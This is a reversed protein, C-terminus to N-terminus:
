KKSNETAKKYSDNLNRLKEQIQRATKPSVLADFEAKIKAYIKKSKGSKIGKISANKQSASFPM